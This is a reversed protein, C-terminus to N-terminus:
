GTCMSATGLAQLTLNTSNTVVKVRSTLNHNHDFHGASAPITEDTRWVGYGCM